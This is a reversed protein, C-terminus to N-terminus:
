LYRRYAEIYDRYEVEAHKPDKGTTAFYAEPHRIVVHCVAVIKSENENFLIRQWGCLDCEATHPQPQSM